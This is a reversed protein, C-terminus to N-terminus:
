VGNGASCAATGGAACPPIDNVVGSSCMSLFGEVYTGDNQFGNSCSEYGTAPTGGGWCGTKSGANDGTVCNGGIMGATPGDICSSEQQIGKTAGTAGSGTPACTASPGINHLYLFVPRMYKLKKKM